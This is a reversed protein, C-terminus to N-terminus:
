SRDSEWTEWESGLGPNLFPKRACRRLNEQIAARKADAITSTGLPKGANYIEVFDSSELGSRGPSENPPNISGIRRASSRRLEVSRAAMGAPVISGIRRRVFGTGAADTAKDAIATIDIGWQQRNAEVAELKARTLQMRAEPVAFSPGREEDRMVEGFESGKAAMPTISGIRRGGKGRTQVSQKSTGVPSFSGIRRTAPMTVGFDADASQMEPEIVEAGIGWQRRNVELAMIKAKPMEMKAQPALASETKEQEIAGGKSGEYQAQPALEDTIDLVSNFLSNYESAFEKVVSYM